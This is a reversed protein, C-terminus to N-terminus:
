PTILKLTATPAAITIKNTGANNTLVNTAKATGTNINPQYTANGITAQKNCALPSTNCPVCNSWNTHIYWNDAGATNTTGAGWVTPSTVNAIPTGTSNSGYCVRDSPSSVSFTYTTLHTSTANAVLPTPTPSTTNSLSGATSTWLYTPTCATNISGVNGTANFPGGTPVGGSPYNICVATPVTASVDSPTPTIKYFRFGNNFGSYIVSGPGLQPTNVTNYFTLSPVWQGASYGGFQPAPTPAQTEFLINIVLPTNSGYVPKVTFYGGSPIYQIPLTSTITCRTNLPSSVMSGGSMYWHTTTGLFRLKGTTFNTNTADTIDLKMKNVGVDNANLYPFSIGWNSCVPWSTNSYNITQGGAIGWAPPTTGGPPYNYPTYATGVGSPTAVATTYTPAVDTVTIVPALGPSSNTCFADSISTVTYTTSEIPQWPVSLTQSAGVASFTGTYGAAPYSNTTGGASYNITYNATGATANWVLQGTSGSGAMCYSNATLTGTPLPRVTLTGPNSTLNTCPSTGGVICRYTYNNMGAVAGTISLSATNFGGYTCGDNPTTAGTIATYIGGIGRQWQYSAITGAATVSFSTNGGACFGAPSGPHSSISIATNITVTASGQPSWCGSNLSRFYYSGTGVTTINQPTGGLNTVSNGSITGQYYITGPTGNSAALSVSTCYSGSSPTVTVASPTQNITVPITTTASTCGNATATVTYNGSNATTPSTVTITESTTSSAPSFTPTGPGAWNYTYMGTTVYSALNQATATNSGKSDTGNGEWKYYSVCNAAYNTNASAPRTMFQVINAQTLATNWISTEDFVGWTQQQPAGQYNGIASINETIQTNSVGVRVGDIYFITKGGTGVAAMHHWVPTAVTGSLQGMNFGSPKFGGADYVGLNVTGPHSVINAIIHHYNPGRLFTNWTSINNNPLPYKFWTQVTWNAGTAVNTSFYQTGNNTNCSAAQGLPAKDTVTMTFNTGSCQAAPTAVTPGPYTNVTAANSTGTARNGSMDTGLVPYTTAAAFTQATQLNGLTAGSGATAHLGYKGALYAAVQEQELVTLARDYYIYEAVDGNSFETAGNGNLQLIGPAALGNGNSVAPFGDGTISNLSAGGPRGVAVFLHPNVDAATAPNNVWTGTYYQNMYTGWYGMLWNVNNSSMLRQCTAGATTMKAVVFITYNVSTFNPGIMYKPATTFRLVPFGNIVNTVLTPNNALAPSNFNNNNTSIDKWQSVTGNSSVIIGADAKVWLKPGTGTGYAPLVNLVATPTCNPAPDTPTAGIFNTLIGNCSNGPISNMSVSTANLTPAVAEVSLTALASEVTTCNTVSVRAYYNGAVVPTLPNGTGYNTGTGGAGSFWTVTPSTGGVGNATATTTSNGCYPNTGFSVSSVTPAANVTVPISTAVTCGGATVSYTITAPGAAVGTVVGSTSVSAITGNSTSWTGVTPDLYRAIVVGTGGAGGVATAGTFITLAGGGGGGTNATGPFGNNSSGGRGAGGGGNGGAGGTTHGGGGGGGSYFTAGTNLLNYSLGVGGAGGTVTNVFAAGVAGAGGGGGGASNNTNNYIMSAGGANGQGITGAAGAQIVNSEGGGGGSGGVTPVVTWSGGGGGGTVTIPGFVTSGGTGGIAFGTGGAAGGGVTVTYASNALASRTYVLGGAGGGGGAIDQSGSGGGGGGGAVALVEVNLITQPITLTGSGTFNHIRYGGSQTIANGGTPAPVTLSTTGGVCVSTTGTIAPLTFCTQNFTITTNTAPVTALTNMVTNSFAATNHTQQTILQTATPTAALTLANIGLSYTYTATSATMTGYIFEIKSDLEYLKVQFNLNPGPNGFVEMGIWEVTLIRNPTTGTLQYKMAANLGALTGPNGVTVLDDYMPALTQTTRNTTSFQNANAYGYAGLGNGIAASATNFTIFGNTSIRFQTRVNGDYWFNFGIPTANSLNDDTSNVNRWSPFNTGTGSISTFSTATAYTATYSIQSKVINYAGLFLLISISLKKMMNM